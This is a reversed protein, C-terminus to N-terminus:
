PRLDVPQPAFRGLFRGLNDVEGEFGLREIGAKNGTQGQATLQDIEGAHKGQPRHELVFLDSGVRKKRHTKGIKRRKEISIGRGQAEVGPQFNERKDEVSDLVERNQLVLLNLLSQVGFPQQTVAM